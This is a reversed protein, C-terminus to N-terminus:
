SEVPTDAANGWDSWAGHYGRVRPFGLHKLVVFTHSSRHHTQCYTVIEKDPTVGLAALRERLARDEVLRTARSRDIADVWDFHAAGPIHGGRAARLDAGNYEAASRTDLPLFDEDGLRSLIYGRDAVVDARAFEARYDAPRPAVEGTQLPRQEQCWAILGGNLLSCRRHGLAALTWLLRAARGCGEDDYAVVHREPGLGLGGLLRGLYDPDPLLGGVPPESRVIAAYDLQVANPIHGGAYAPLARMDVLLLDKEDLRPELEAPEIIDPPVSM